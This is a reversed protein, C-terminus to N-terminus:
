GKTPYYKPFVALNIAQRLMEYIEGAKQDNGALANGELLNPPLRPMGYVPKTNQFRLTTGPRKDATQEEGGLAPQM